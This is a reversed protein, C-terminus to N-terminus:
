KEPKKEKYLVRDVKKVDKLIGNIRMLVTIQGLIMFLVMCLEIITLDYGLISVSPTHAKSLPFQLLSAAM